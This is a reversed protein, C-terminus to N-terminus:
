VKDINLVNILRGTSDKTIDKIIVKNPTNANIVRGTVWNGSIAGGVTVTVAFYVPALASTAAFATAVVNSRPIFPTGPM